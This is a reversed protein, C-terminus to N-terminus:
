HTTLQISHMRPCRHRGRNDEICLVMGRIMLRNLLPIASRWSGICIRVDTLKVRGVSAWDSMLSGNPVALCGLDQCPM